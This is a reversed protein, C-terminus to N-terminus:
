TKPALRRPTALKGLRESLLKSFQFVLARRDREMSLLGREALNLLDTRATQYLVGFMRRHAEIM